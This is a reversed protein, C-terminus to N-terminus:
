KMVKRFIGVLTYKSVKLRNKAWNGDLNWIQSRKLQWAVTTM